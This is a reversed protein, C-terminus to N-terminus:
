RVRSFSYIKNDCNTLHNNKVRLLTNEQNLISNQKRLRDNEKKLCKIESKLNNLEDLTLDEIKQTQKKLDRVYNNYNM